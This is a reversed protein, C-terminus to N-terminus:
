KGKELIKPPFVSNAVWLLCFAEWYGIRPLGFVQPVAYNWTWVFPWAMLLSAGAIVVFALVLFGITELFKSM